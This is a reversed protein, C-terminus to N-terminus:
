GRDHVYTMPVDSDLRYTMTIDFLRMLEADRLLTYHEECDMSWAVWLQAPLKTAALLRRWESPDSGRYFKWDPVHFVVANAEAFRHRDLTFEFGEPAMSQDLGWM